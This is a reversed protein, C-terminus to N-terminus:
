AKRPKLLYNVTLYQQGITLVNNVLWYLVLGAPFNLFFFTMIVPVFMMVKQQVPDPSSPNLKYQLIMTIGMVIPLV